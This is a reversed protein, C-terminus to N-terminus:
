ALQNSFTTIPTRPQAVSSRTSSTCHYFHMGVLLILNEAPLVDGGDIESTGSSKVTLVTQQGECYVVLQLFSYNLIGSMMSLVLRITMVPYPLM